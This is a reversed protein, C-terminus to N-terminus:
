HKEAGLAAALSHFKQKFIESTSHVHEAEFIFGMQANQRLKYKALIELLTEKVKPYGYFAIIKHEDFQLEMIPPRTSSIAIGSCGDDVLCEEFECLASRLVVLDIGEREIDEHPYCNHSTELVVNARTGRILGILDLFLDFLIEKSAAIMVRPISLGAEHYNDFRFGARPKIKLDYSPAIAETLVFGDYWKIALHTNVEEETLQKFSSTWQSKDVVHKCVLKRRM